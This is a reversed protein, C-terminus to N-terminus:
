VVSKRDAERHVAYAEVASFGGPANISGIEGVEALQLPVIHAGAASLRSLAGETVVGFFANYKASYIGGLAILDCGAEHDRSQSRLADVARIGVQGGCLLM